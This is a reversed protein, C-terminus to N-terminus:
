NAAEDKTAILMASERETWQFETMSHVLPLCKSICLSAMRMDQDQLNSVSGGELIILENM